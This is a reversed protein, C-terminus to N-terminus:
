NLSLPRAASQARANGFPHQSSTISGLMPKEQRRAWTRFGPNGHRLQEAHRGRHRVLVGLPGALVAFVGGGARLHEGGPM